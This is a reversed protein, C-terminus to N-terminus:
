HVRGTVSRFGFAPTQKERVIFKWRTHDDSEVYWLPQEFEFAGEVFTMTGDDNNTLSEYFWTWDGAFISTLYFGWDPAFDPDWTMVHRDPKTITMWTWAYCEDINPNFISPTCYRGGLRTFELVVVPDDVCLTGFWIISEEPSPMSWPNMDHWGGAPVWAEVETCGDPLPPGFYDDPYGAWLSGAIAFIAVILIIIQRRMAM